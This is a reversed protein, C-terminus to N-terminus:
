ITRILFPTNKKKRVSKKIEAYVVSTGRKLENGFTPFHLENGYEPIHVNANLGARM